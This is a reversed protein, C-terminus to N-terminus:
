RGQRMKCYSYKCVGYSVLNMKSSNFTTRRVMASYDIDKIVRHYPCKINNCPLM